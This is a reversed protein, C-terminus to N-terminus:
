QGGIPMEDMLWYLQGKNNHHTYQKCCCTHIKNRGLQIEQMHPGDLFYGAM